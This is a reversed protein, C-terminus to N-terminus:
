CIAQGGHLMQNRYATRYFTGPLKHGIKARIDATQDGFYDTRFDTLKDVDVKLFTRMSAREALYFMLSETYLFSALTGIHLHGWGMAVGSTKEGAEVHSLLFDGLSTSSSELLNHVTHRRLLFYGSVISTGKAVKEGSNIRYMKEVKPMDPPAGLSNVKLALIEHPLLAEREDAEVFGIVDRGLLISHEVVPQLTYGPFLGSSANMIVLHSNDLKFTDIALKIDDIDSKEESPLLCGNSVIHGPIFNKTNAWALVEVTSIPHIM